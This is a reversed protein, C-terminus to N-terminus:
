PMRENISIEDICQADDDNKGEYIEHQDFASMSESCRTCLIPPLPANIGYFFSKNVRCVVNLCHRRTCPLSSSRTSNNKHVESSVSVCIIITDIRWWIHETYRYHYISFFLQFNFNITAKIRKERHKIFSYPFDINNENRINISEWRKWRVHNDPSTFFYVHM